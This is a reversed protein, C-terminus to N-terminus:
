PVIQIEHIQNLSWNTIMELSESDSFGALELLRITGDSFGVAM